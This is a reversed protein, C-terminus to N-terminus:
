ADPVVEVVRKGLHRELDSDTNLGLAELRSFQEQQAPRGFLEFFDALAPPLESDPPLKVQDVYSETPAIADHDFRALPSVIEEVEDDLLQVTPRGGRVLPSARGDRFSAYTFYSRGGRSGLGLPRREFVESVDIGRSILDDRAADIDKVALIMRDVSGPEATTLGKGFHISCQSHAARVAGVPYRRQRGPRHGAALGLSRYFRKARDVDSVPLTVVELMMDIIGVDPMEMSTDPSVGTSSM